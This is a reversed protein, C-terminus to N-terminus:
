SEGSEYEAIKQVIPFFHEALNPYKVGMATAKGRTERLFKPVDIENPHALAHKIHKQLGWVFLRTDAHHLTLRTLRGDIEDLLNEVEM